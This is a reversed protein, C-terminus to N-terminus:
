LRSRLWLVVDWRNTDWNGAFGHGSGTVTKVACGIKRLKLAACLDTSHKPSVYETAGVYLKMPVDYANVATKSAMDDFKTACAGSYPTTCGAVALTQDRLTQQAAGSTPTNGDDYALRPDAVPSFAVVGRWHKNARQYTGLNTSIQGGASDGVLFMRTTNIDFYSARARIWSEALAVDNRQAPWKANQSLRYDVTFTQFGHAALYTAVKVPDPSNYRGKTWGGGHVVLVAPRTGKSVPTWLARLKYASTPGFQYDHQSVAAQATGTTLTLATAASALASIGCAIKRLRRTPM